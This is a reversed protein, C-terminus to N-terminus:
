VCRHLRKHGDEASWFAVCCETQPKFDCGRIALFLEGRGGDPGTSSAVVVHTFGDADVAEILCPHDAPGAEFYFGHLAYGNLDAEEELRLEAAQFHVGNHIYFTHYSQGAQPAAVSVRLLTSERGAGVIALDGAVDLQRNTNDLEIRYFSAPRPIWLPRRQQIAADIAAQFAARDNTQGDGRARYPAQRKYM